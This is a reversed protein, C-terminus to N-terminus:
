FPLRITLKWIRNAKTILAFKVVRRTLKDYRHRTFYVRWANLPVLGIAGVIRAIEHSYDIKKM